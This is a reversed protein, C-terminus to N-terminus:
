LDGWLIQTATIASLAATETRLIRPGLTVGNFGLSKATHLENETFGGEPGILLSISTPQNIDTLKTSATPDLTLMIDSLSTHNIENLKCPSNITPVFNRGSQECASIAIGKWHTLKKELRDAKLNVVTRECFVPTISKVGLEISKQIVFDMREGKSIGQFLHIDLPSEYNVDKFSEIDATASKGSIHLKATFEGGKGNFITFNQGPKARLVKILHNCASKDLDITSNVALEKDQFIRINRM